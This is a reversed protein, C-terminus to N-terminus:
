ATPSELTFSSNSNGQTKFLEKIPSLYILGLIVGEALSSIYGVLGTWGTNVHPGTLVTLATVTGVYVLFVSRGWARFLILGVAALVGLFTEILFPINTLLEFLAFRDPVLITEYTNLYGLLEPPLSSETVYQVLVIAIALIQSFVVLIQFSRQSMELGSYVFSGKVTGGSAEKVAWV